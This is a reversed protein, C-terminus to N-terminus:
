PWQVDLVTYDIISMVVGLATGPASGAMESDKGKQWEM